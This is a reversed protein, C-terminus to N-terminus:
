LEITIPGFSTVVVDCKAAVQSVEQATADRLERTSCGALLLAALLALKIDSNALWDGFVPRRRDQSRPSPRRRSRFGSPNDGGRLGPAQWKRSGAQQWLAVFGVGWYHAM